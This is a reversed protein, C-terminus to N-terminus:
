QPEEQEDPEYGLHVFGHALYSVVRQTIFFAPAKLLWSIDGLYVWVGVALLFSMIDAGMEGLAMMKMDWDTYRV